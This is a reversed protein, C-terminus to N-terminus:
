LFKGELQYNREKPTEKMEGLFVHKRQASHTLTVAIKEKSVFYVTCVGKQLLFTHGSKMLKIIAPCVKKNCFPDPYIRLEIDEWVNATDGDM